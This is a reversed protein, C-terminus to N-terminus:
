KNKHSRARSNGYFECFKNQPQPLAVPEMYTRAVASALSGGVISDLSVWLGVGNRRDHHHSKPDGERPTM